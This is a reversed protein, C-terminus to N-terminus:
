GKVRRQNKVLDEVSKLFLANLLNFGGAFKFFVLFQLLLPGSILWPQM